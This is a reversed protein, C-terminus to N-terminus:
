QPLLTYLLTGSGAKKSMNLAFKKLISCLSGFVCNLLVEQFSVNRTGVSLEGANSRPCTNLSDKFLSMFWKLSFQYTHRIHAMDM